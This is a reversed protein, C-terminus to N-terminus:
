EEKGSGERARDELVELYQRNAERLLSEANFGGKRALHTLSLLLEGLDRGVADRDGTNVATELRGFRAEVGKWVSGGEHVELGEREAREGMRHAKLLAPLNGPIGKLASSEGGAGGKENRKIEAWNEAVDEANKVEADGFVHPHRRIMKEKITELVDVLDFEQREEALHALFLIQFLLDGLEQCVQRPSSSEVADLVEYAEELLYIKLTEDTQKADWPCGGPGRLRAVLEVLALLAGSLRNPEM